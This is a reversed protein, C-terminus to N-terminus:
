FILDNMIQHLPLKKDSVLTIFSLIVRNIKNGDMRDYMCMYQSFQLIDLGVLTCREELRLM